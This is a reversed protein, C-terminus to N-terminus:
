GSVVALEPNKKPRGPKKKEPINSLLAQMQEQMAKLQRGQEAIQEDRAKLEEAQKSAYASDKAVALYTKARDRLVNPSIGTVGMGMVQLQTDSALAISEVTLFKLAKLTEGQAPTLLPWQSLPTGIVKGDKGHVNLYHAWHLPFRAKDEERLPRDIINLQSGPTHIEVYVMDEFIPHGEKESLFNNKAPRSYIRVHLASDANTAGAFNQNNMDSAIGMPRHNPDVFTEM